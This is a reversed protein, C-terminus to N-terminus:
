QKKRKRGGTAPQEPAPSASAMAGAKRKRDEAPPTPQPSPAASGPQAVAVGVAVGAAAAPAPIPAAAALTPQYDASPQLAALEAQKALKAKELALLKVADLRLANFAAAVNLSPLLSAPVELADMLDGMKKTMRKGVGVANPRKDMQTSRLTCQQSTSAVAAAEILPVAPSAKEEQLVRKLEADVRKFEAALRTEEAEDEKTRTFLAEHRSAHERELAADFRFDALAARASSVLKGSPHATRALDGLLAKCPEAAAPVLCLRQAVQFYRQKLDALPRVPNFRDHIVPWRM